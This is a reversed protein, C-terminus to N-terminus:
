AAKRMSRVAVIRSGLLCEVRYIWGRYDDGPGKSPPVVYGLQELTAKANRWLDAQVDPAIADNTLAERGTAIVDVLASHQALASTIRPLDHAQAGYHYACWWSKASSSEACGGALRCGNAACIRGAQAPPEEAQQQEHMRKRAETYASM